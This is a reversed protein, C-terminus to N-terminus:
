CGALKKWQAPTMILSQRGEHKAEKTMRAVAAKFTDDRPREKKAHDESAKFRQQLLRELDIPNPPFEKLAAQMGPMIRIPWEMWGPGIVWGRRGVPIIHAFISNGQKLHQSLYRNDVTFEEDKLKLILGKGPNVWSILALVYRSNKFSDIASILEKGSIVAAMALEVPYRGDPLKYTLAFWGVFRRERSTVDGTGEMYNVEAPDDYGFFQGRAAARIDAIADSRLCWQTLLEVMNSNLAM